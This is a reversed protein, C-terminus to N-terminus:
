AMTRSSSESLRIVKVGPLFFVVRPLKLIAGPLSVSRPRMTTKSDPLSRPSKRATVTAVAIANKAMTPNSSETLM